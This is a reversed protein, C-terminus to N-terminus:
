KHHLKQAVTALKSIIAVLFGAAIAALFPADISLLFCVALFAFVAFVPVAAAVAVFKIRTQTANTM